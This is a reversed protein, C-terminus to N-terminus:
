REWCLIIPPSQIPPLSARRKSDTIIAHPRVTAIIALNFELPARSDLPVFAGGAKWIALVGATEAFADHLWLAVRSGPGIGVEHLNVAIVNATDNIQQYTWEGTATEIAIRQPHKQVRQEIHWAISQEPDLCQM